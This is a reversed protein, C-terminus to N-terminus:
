DESDLEDEENLEEIEWEVTIRHNKFYEDLETLYPNGDLRIWRLSPLHKLAALFLASLTDDIDSYSIDLDTIILRHKLLVEFFEEIQIKSLGLDGFKVSSLNKCFPIMNCFYSWGNQHTDLSGNYSINIEKLQSYNMKSLFSDLVESPIRCASLDIVEIKQLKNLNDLSIIDALNNLSLRLVRTAPNLSKFIIEAYEAELGIDCLILIELMPLIPVIELISPGLVNCSLDIERLICRAKNLSASLSQLASTKLTVSNFNILSHELNLIKLSPCRELDKFNEIPIRYSIKKVFSNFTSSAIDQTNNIEL